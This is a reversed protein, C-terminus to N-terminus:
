RHWTGNHQGSISRVPLYGSIFSEVHSLTVSVYTGSPREFGTILNDVDKEQDIFGYHRGFSFNATVDWAVIRTLNQSVECRYIGRYLRNSTASPLQCTRGVLDRLDRPPIEKEALQAQYEAVVKFAYLVGTLTPKPGIRKIPNV